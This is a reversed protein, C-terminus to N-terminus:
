NSSSVDVDYYHYDGIPTGEVSFIFTFKGGPQIKFNPVTTNFKYYGNEDPSTNNIDSPNINLTFNTYKIFCKFRTHRSSTMFNISVNLKDSDNILIDAMSVQRNDVGRNPLQAGSFVIDIFKKKCPTQQPCSQNGGM